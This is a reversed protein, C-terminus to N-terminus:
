PCVHIRNVCIRHRMTAIKEECGIMANPKTLDLLDWDVVTKKYRESVTFNKFIFSKKSKKNILFKLPFLYIPIYCFARMIISVNFNTLLMKNAEFTVFSEEKEWVCSTHISFGQGGSKLFKTIIKDTNWNLFNIIKYFDKYKLILTKRVTWTYSGEFSCYVYKPVGAIVIRYVGAKEIFQSVCDCTQCEDSFFFWHNISIKNIGTSVLENWQKLWLLLRTKLVDTPSATQMWLLWEYM